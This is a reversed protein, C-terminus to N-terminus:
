PTGGKNKRLHYAFSVQVPLEDDWNLKYLWLEQLLVKARIVVPSILGLPDFIQAVESTIVRKTIKKNTSEAKSTFSFEDTSSSWKMGLLKTAGDGFTISPNATSTNILHLFSTSTSHWKALPFQGASCLNILQKAKIALEQM